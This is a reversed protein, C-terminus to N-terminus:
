IKTKVAARVWSKIAEFEEDSYSSKSFLTYDGENRYLMIIDQEIHAKVFHEWKYLAQNNESITEYGQAHIIYSHESAGGEYYKARKRFSFFFGHIYYQAMLLMIIGWIMDSIDGKHIGKYTYYAGLPIFVIIWVLILWYRLPYRNKYYFRNAKAFADIDYTIKNKRIENM